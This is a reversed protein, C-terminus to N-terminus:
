FCSTLSKLNLTQSEELQFCRVQSKDGKDSEPMFKVSISITFEYVDHLRLVHRIMMSM